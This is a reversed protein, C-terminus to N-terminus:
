TQIRAGGHMRSGATDGRRLAPSLIHLPEAQGRVPQILMLQSRVHTTPEEVLLLCKVLSCIRKIDREEDKLLHPQTGVLGWGLFIIM